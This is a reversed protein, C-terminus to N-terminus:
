SDTWLNLTKLLAESWQAATASAVLACSLPSTSAPDFKHTTVIKWLIRICTIAQDETLTRIVPMIADLSDLYRPLNNPEEYRKSQRSMDGWQTCRYDREFEAVKFTPYDPSWVWKGNQKWQFHYATCDKGLHKGIALRQANPNM